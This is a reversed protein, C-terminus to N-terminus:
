ARAGILAAIKPSTFEYAQTRGGSRNLSMNDPVTDLGLSGSRTRAVGGLAGSLAASGMGTSLSGTRPKPPPWTDQPPTEAPVGKPEKPKITGWLTNVAGLFGTGANVIATLRNPPEEASSAGVPIVGAQASRTVWVVVAVAGVGAIIYKTSDKM